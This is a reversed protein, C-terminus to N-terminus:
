DKGGPAPDPPARRDPAAQEFAYGLSLLLSESWAPGMFSLGVPLNDVFGMPVTLHPYGSVASLRTASPGGADGNEPDILWAPGTTPAVLAVLNNEALLRDIGEPGAATKAAGQARIYDADGLGNTAEAKEFLDQGFWALERPEAANFAIIEALTRATVEPPTEALYANLGSKFETLLVIIENDGMSGFDFTDIEVLEAGQAKLMELAAEFVALTQATYGDLFRAVGIRSGKLANPDLAALYDTKHTDAERTAPDDPDSGAMATLLAATGAVTRTMPGATDQSAAIPIIGSRSVLGVTPKLGVIGNISSPCTVSGDTETGVTAAALSVAAAVGSGSSSGCATRTLDHPNRAIGGVASWGSSSDSSRFNAWESLNAKGLIVAGANKLNRVLPADRRPFNNALALSGATTAMGLTDINDKVLIPIGDLPGLTKGEARRADSARAQDLADPAIVIVARLAPNLTNIREIYAETVSESNTRGAALDAAMDGLPVDKVSYSANPGPCASLGVSLLGAYTVARLRNM